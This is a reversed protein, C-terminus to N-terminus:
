WAFRAGLSPLIPLGRIYDKKRYDFSYVIEEPNGRNTVNQVDLYVELESRTGFRFRKSARADVQVFPPIRETSQAGFVPQYTDTRADYYSGKVPTRPMGSAVRVRAGVEFGAGIEYSALATLVHTQDFDFPRWRGDPRDRRESRLLSYSLWGFLGRALEQRVLIQAGFARGEGQQVLAEALLPATLPSRAALDSSRSYFGTAEVSLTSTLRFRAGALAHHASSLSLLPNGFVASLDEALPAQHYLGYAAKVRVRPSVDATVALRPELVTENSFAGISPTNGEVPTRHSASIVYPEFRLGPIVHIRDGWLAVDAEAYPAASAIVVRWTDAGIQDSPAQGFVYVDGERPPSTVSGSRRLSGASGEVDVGASVTMWKTPRGRWSARLGFVTADTDISSTVGGVRSALRSAETGAWPLLTVSAGEAIERRYRFYVRNWKLSRTESKREAPDASAVTRDVADSSLM